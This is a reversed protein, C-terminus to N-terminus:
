KRLAVDVRAAASAPLRDRVLALREAIERADRKQALASEVLDDLHAKCDPRVDRGAFVVDLASRADGDVILFFALDLAGIERSRRAVDVITDAHVAPVPTFAFSTIRGDRLKITPTRDAAILARYQSTVKAAASLKLGVRSLAAKM